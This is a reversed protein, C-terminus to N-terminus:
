DHADVGGDMEHWTREGRREVARARHGHWAHHGGGARDLQREVLIRGRGVVGERNRETVRAAVDRDRDGPLGDTALEAVRLGAGTVHGDRGRIDGEREPRGERGIHLHGARGACEVQAGCAGCAHDADGIRLDFHRAQDVGGADAGLDLQVRPRGTERDCGDRERGARVKADLQVRRRRDHDGAKALECAREEELLLAGGGDEREGSCRGVDAVRAAGDREVVTFAREHDGSVADGPIERSARRGGDPIDRDAPAHEQADVGGAVGDVLGHVDAPVAQRDVEALGLARGERDGDRRQRDVDGVDGVDFAADGIRRLVDGALGTRLREGSRAHGHEEAFPRQREGVPVAVGECAADQQRVGRDTQDLDGPDSECEVRGARRLRDSESVCSDGAGNVDADVAEVVDEVVVEGDCAGVRTDRDLERAALVRVARRREASDAPGPYLELDEALREGTVQRDGLRGPTEADDCGIDIEREAVLGRVDRRAPRWEEM